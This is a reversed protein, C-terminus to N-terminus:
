IALIVSFINCYLVSGNYNVGSWELDTLGCFVSMCLELYGEFFLRILGGWFLMKDYKNYWKDALKYKDKFCSCIAYIILQMIYINFLFFCTGLNEVPYM